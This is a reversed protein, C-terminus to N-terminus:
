GPLMGFYLQEASPRHMGLQNVAINELEYLSIRNEIRVKLIDREHEAFAIQKELEMCRSEAAMLKANYILTLMLMLASFFICVARFLLKSVSYRHRM